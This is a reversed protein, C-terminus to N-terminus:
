LIGLIYDVYGCKLALHLKPGCPVGMSVGRAALVDVAGTFPSVLLILGALGTQTIRKGTHLNPRLEIKVPLLDALRQGADNGLEGVETAEELAAALTRKAPRRGLRTEARCARVECPFEAYGSLICIPM